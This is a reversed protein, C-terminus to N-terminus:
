NYRIFARQRLQRMWANYNEQQRQECLIEQIHEYVEPLPSHYEPRQDSLHLLVWANSIDLWPTHEDRTLGEAARQLEPRLDDPSIWGLDQYHMDPIETQWLAIRERFGTGQLRISLVSELRKQLTERDDISHYPVLVQQLHIQAKQSFKERHQEYYHSIEEPSITAKTNEQRMFHVIAHQRIEEKFEHISKGHQQLYESLLQRQNHFHKQLYQQYHGEIFSEPIKGKKREFEKVILIRDIMSELHQRLPLSDTTGNRSRDPAAHSIQWDHRLQDVTIIQNEVIAVIHNEYANAYPSVFALIGAISLLYSQFHM